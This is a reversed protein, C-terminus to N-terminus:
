VICLRKRRHLEGRYPRKGRSETRRKMPQHNLEAYHFDIILARGLEANWLINALRLDQHLVGLSRIEKVSRTIERTRKDREIEPIPEGGWAMILMHCIEGAGHVFYFKVLDIAGLFVPVASAQAKNLIHYVVEERKVEEWRRSTTGKGVMTYGYAACTVKFPVGSAGCGGLPTCDRDINEDLQQKLQKILTKANILHQSSNGGQRHLMVNPCNDDLQGGHQLSRLCKQTCFQATHQQGQGSCQTYRSGVLRTSRQASPSSPSSPVQSFGRKRGGPAQDADSDSDDRPTLNPSACSVRSRTAIRRADAPPPAPSSSPIYESTTPESSMYQSVTYESDPPNKQLESEPIQSRTHDFSTKWEPLNKTANRWEQDRYQSRFSMLCLCLVRAVATLPQQPSSLEDDPNVEMNPECLHYYLIGPNDYPVRLLVIAFGNTLYSYELGEQLMVHYEQVLASGTLWAANYKLKEPGETPVSDPRVVENWFLMPRLGARLNEVSLKHPPKYEVTMIITNYNGDIRHICYQDPRSRRSSSPKDTQSQDADVADLANAHNDFQIADGLCFEERAAPIKCLETIIDRVYDEVGFREYSELDQESSIARKSFRQGLDELALRPSFLRAAPRGSPALYACVSRYVKLQEAACNTWHLLQLPCRKGTPAPIKGTTSRSPSEARLSRSFYVHCFRILEAFTTQRTQERGQDREQEALRQREEAQKRLEAERQREEEARLFLAKYDPPSSNDM